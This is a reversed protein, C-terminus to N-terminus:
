NEWKIKELFKKLVESANKILGLYATSKDARILKFKDKSVVFFGMPSVTFGGGTGGAMPFEASNRKANLDNYEGGGSVFGVSVKSIPIIASGDPLTIASGVVCNVDIISRLKELSVDILSEIKNEKNLNVTEMKKM